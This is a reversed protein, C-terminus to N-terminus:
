FEPIHLNYSCHFTALNEASQLAQCYGTNALIYAIQVRVCQQYSHLNSLWEPLVKATDIFNFLFEGM